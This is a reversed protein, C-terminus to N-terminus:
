REVRGSPNPTLIGLALVAINQASEFDSKTVTPKLDRIRELAERLRAHEENSPTPEDTM